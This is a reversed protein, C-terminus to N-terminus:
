EEEETEGSVQKASEVLFVELSRAAQAQKSTSSTPTVLLVELLTQDSGPVTEGRFAARLLEDATDVSLRKLTQTLTRSGFGALILSPGAGTAGGFTRLIRTGARSGAVAALLRM